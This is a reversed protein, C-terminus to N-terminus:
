VLRFVIMSITVDDEKLWTILNEVDGNRRLYINCAANPFSQILVLEHDLFLL